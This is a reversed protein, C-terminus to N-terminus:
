HQEPGCWDGPQLSVHPLCSVEHAIRKLIDFDCMLPYHINVAHAMGGHEESILLLANSGGRGQVESPKGLM